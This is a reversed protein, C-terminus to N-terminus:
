VGRYMWKWLANRKHRDGAIRSNRKLVSLAVDLSREVAAREDPSLDTVAAQRIGDGIACVDLLSVGRRRYIPAIWEAYQVLWSQDDSSLCMALREILLEADRLLHRLGTDDYRTRITPDQEIASELARVAIPASERRLREAAEPYGATMNSPALGLNPHDFAPRTASPAIPAAPVKAVKATRKAPLTAGASARPKPSKPPVAAVAGEAAAPSTVAAAGDAPTPEAPPAPEPTPTRTSKAV